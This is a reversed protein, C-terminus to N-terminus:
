FHVEATSVSAYRERKWAARAGRACNFVILAHTHRQLSRPSGVGFLAVQGVALLGNLFGLKAMGDRTATYAMGTPPIHQYVDIRSTAAV